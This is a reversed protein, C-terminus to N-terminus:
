KRIIQNEDIKLFDSDEFSEDSGPIFWLDFTWEATIWRNGNFGGELVWYFGEKRKM